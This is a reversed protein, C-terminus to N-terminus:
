KNEALIRDRWATDFMDAETLKEDEPYSLLDGAAFFYDQVELNSDVALEFDPDWNLPAQKGVEEAPLGLQDVMIEAVVPNRPYDNQLYKTTSRMVARALALGVEPGYESLLTKGFLLQSGSYPPYYGVFECCSQGELQHWFPTHVFAAPASGRILAQPMDAGPFMEWKVDSPDVGQPELVERHLYALSTLGPGTLTLVKNGVLDSAQFGDEELVEKRVWLGQKVGSEPDFQQMPLVAKIQAGGAILNLYGPSFSGPVADLEGRALLPGADSPPVVLLEVDLNEKEFEGLEDALIYPLNAELAGAIGIKIKAKETLPRPAFPGEGIPEAVEASAVTETSGAGGCAALVVMLVALMMAGASRRAPPQANWKSTSTSM